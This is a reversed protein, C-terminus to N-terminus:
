QLEIVQAQKEPAAMLAIVLAPAITNRGSAIKAAQTEKNWSPFRRELLDIAIKPSKAVGDRAAEVLGREFEAGARGCERAFTADRKIWRSLTEHDIKAFKAASHRSMGLRLCDLIEADTEDNRKTPRGIKAMDAVKLANNRSPLRKARLFVGRWGYNIAVGVVPVFVFFM